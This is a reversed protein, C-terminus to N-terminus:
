GKNKTIIFGIIAVIVIVMGIIIIGSSNGGSRSTAESAISATYLSNYAGLSLKDFFGLDKTM